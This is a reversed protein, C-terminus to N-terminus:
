ERPPRFIVELQPMKRFINRALPSYHCSRPFGRYCNFIIILNKILLLYMPKAPILKVTAEFTVPFMLIVDDRSKSTYEKHIKMVPPFIIDHLHGRVVLPPWLPKSFFMRIQSSEQTQVCLNGRVYPNGSHSIDSIRDSM